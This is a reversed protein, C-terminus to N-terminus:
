FCLYTEPCIEAKLIYRNRVLGRFAGCNGCKGGSFCRANPSSLEKCVVVANHQSQHSLRSM